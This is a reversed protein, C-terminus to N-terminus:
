RVLKGVRDWRVSRLEKMLNWGSASDHRSWYVMMAEGIVNEEPVFGWYRSDLSNNWNDGVVFLYDREVIYTNAPNGDILIIGNGDDVVTHGERRIFLEWQRFNNPDLTITDGRRPVGIPGYQDKNFSSGPPFIRQDHYDNPLPNLQASKAPRNKHFRIGNVSLEGDIISVTDGGVAVCRKVFNVGNVPNLPERSSSGDLEAPSEFVLVAGRAIKKLRPFRLTPIEVKTWPIRRPTQAGYVFKNVLVFDGAQLTPEMSASPIHFAEVVFTKLFLAAALTFVLAIAYDRVKSQWYSRARIQTEEGASAGPTNQLSEM